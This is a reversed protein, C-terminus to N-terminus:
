GMLKDPRENLAQVNDQHVRDFEIAVTYWGKKTITDEFANPKKDSYLIRTALAWNLGKRFTRIIMNNDTTLEAKSVTLRFENVYEKATRNEQSIDDLKQISEKKKDENLFAAKFATLFVAPQGLILDM